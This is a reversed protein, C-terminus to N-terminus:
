PAPRRNVVTRALAGVVSGAAMGMILGITLKGFSFHGIAGGAVLGLIACVRWALQGRSQLWASRMQANVQAAEQQQKLPQLLADAAVEAQEKRM